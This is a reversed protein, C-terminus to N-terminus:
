TQAEMTDALRSVIARLCSAQSPSEDAAKRKLLRLIDLILPKSYISMIQLYFIVSGM